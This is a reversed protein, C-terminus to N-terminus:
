DSWDKDLEYKVIRGNKDIYENNNLFSENSYLIGKYEIWNNKNTIVVAGKDNLFALKNFKGLSKELYNMLMDNYEFGDKFKKLIFENFYYTDSYTKSIPMELIIGNHAFLLHENVFFPHCMEINVKGHTALRCHIIIDNNTNSKILKYINWLEKPSFIGAHIALKNTHKDVFGIGAGDPNNEFMNYLAQKTISKDKPIVAIICM